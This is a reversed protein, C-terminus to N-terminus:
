LKTKKLVIVESQKKVIFAYFNRLDEYEEPYFTAKNINVICRMVISNKDAQIIYEFYGDAENLKVKASKPLEDVMYGKPIEINITIVEHQAFYMEVPYNRQTATYINKKNAENLLPNFYIIDEKCEFDFDYKLTIPLEYKKLSDLTVNEVHVDFGFSNKIKKEFANIGISEIENRLFTSEYYGLDSKYSAIMKKASDANFIFISTTKTEILSDSFLPVLYPNKENITRGNGNYCNIPLRNFGNKKNSADLLFIENNIELKSILYNFKNLLPYSEYAWGNDRTSLLVPYAQLKAKLLMATLLMNIEIINGKKEEHVTKLTNRMYLADFDTCTYNNKVFNFISIATQMSNNLVLLKEIDDELWKNKESLAKGFQEDELMEKAAQQWTKLIPKPAQDPYNLSSLQFEIKSVHNSVTTTFNEPVIAPLNTLEWKSHTNTANYTFNENKLTSNDGSTSLYYMQTNTNIETPTLDYYGTKLFIFNFLGPVTIDYSAKLIPYGSQFAFGRLSRAYPSTISYTYEVICGEKINPFTLKRLEYDKTAKDKFISEKDVKTKIIAGNQLIYSAAELKDLKDENSSGKYIPIEVTALEFANKNILLIRKHYTYVINFWGNSNGEYKAIGSNYLIIAQANSDLSKYEPAFDKEVIDGFKIKEAKNKQAACTTCLILFMVSTLLLRM